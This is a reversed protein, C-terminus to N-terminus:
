GVGGVGWTEGRRTGIQILSSRGRGGDVLVRGGEGDSKRLVAARFSAPARWRRPAADGAQNPRGGAGLPGIGSGGDDDHEAMTGLARLEM